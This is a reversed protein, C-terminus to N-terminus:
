LRRWARGERAMLEDASAPGQTGAPYPEPKVHEM